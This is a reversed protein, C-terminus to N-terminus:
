NRQGLRPRLCELSSPGTRSWSLNEGQGKEATRPRLSATRLATGPRGQDHNGMHASIVKTKSTNIRMGVAAAHHNVAELLGQMVRYSNSLIEIDDAYILCM